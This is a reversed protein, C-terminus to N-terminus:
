RTGFCSDMVTRNQFQANIVGTNAKLSTATKAKIRRRKRIERMIYLVQKQIDQKSTVRVYWGNQDEYVLIPIDRAIFEETVDSVFNEHLRQKDGLKEELLARVHFNGPYNWAVGNRRVLFADIEPCEIAHFSKSTFDPSYYRIYDGAAEAKRNDDLKTRMKMSTKHNGDKITGTCSLPICETPIGFTRLQYDREVQTGSPCMTTVCNILTNTPCNILTIENSMVSVM